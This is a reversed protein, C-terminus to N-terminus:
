SGHLTGIVDLTASGHSREITQDLLASALTLASEASFGNLHAALYLGSLLDGTGHPVHDRKGTLHRYVGDRTVLLTALKDQEPISTALLQPCALKQAATIAEAETSISTGTLWGLEFANPTTITALPLLEDRVAIAVDEAVYLKGGDGLVPDILVPLDPNDKKMASIRAAVAKVQDAAAFYGTLVAACSALVGQAALATLMAALESAPLRVGAPLGLGPHNSLIITPVQLCTFGAAQLAPVAAANGVSGYAVASSICLINRM